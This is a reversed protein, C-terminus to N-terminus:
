RVGVDGSTRGIPRTVDVTSPLLERGCRPCLLSGGPVPGADFRCEGDLRPDLHAPCALDVTPGGGLGGTLEQFARAAALQDSTRRLTSGVAAVSLVVMVGCLWLVGQSTRPMMM